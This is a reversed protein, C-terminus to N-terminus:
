DLGREGAELRAATRHSQHVFIVSHRAQQASWGARASDIRPPPRLLENGLPNKAGHQANGDRDVHGGTSVLIPAARHTGCTSSARPGPDSHFGAARRQSLAAASLPRDSAAPQGSTIKGTPVRLFSVSVGARKRACISPQSASGRHGTSPLARPLREHRKRRASHCRASERRPARPM